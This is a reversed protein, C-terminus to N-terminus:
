RKRKIDNPGYVVIDSNLYLLWATEVDGADPESASEIVRRAVDRNSEYYYLGTGLIRVDHLSSVSRLPCFLYDPCWDVETHGGDLSDMFIGKLRLQYTTLDLLQNGITLWVHFHAAGPPAVAGPVPAHCIISPDSEGTRWAAYGICLTAEVGLRALIERAISHRIYCDTGLNSSAATCLKRIAGALRPIDVKSLLEEQRQRAIARRAAEGM